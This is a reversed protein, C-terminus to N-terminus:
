HTMRLQSSRWDPMECLSRAPRTSTSGIVTQRRISLSSARPRTSRRASGLSRRTFVAAGSRSPWAWGRRFGHRDPRVAGPPSPLCKRHRASIGSRSAAACSSCDAAAASSRVLRKLPSRMVLPLTFITRGPPSTTSILGALLADCSAPAAGSIARASFAGGRFKGASASNAM